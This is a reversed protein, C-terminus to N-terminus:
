PNKIQALQHVIDKRSVLGLIKGSKDTVPLRSVHTEAMLDVADQLTQDDTLVKVPKSMLDKVKEAAHEKLKQNFGQPDLYLLSGLLYIGRPNELTTFHKILDSETVIGVVKQSSDVVPVGLIAHKDMLQFLERINEDEQITIVKKTMFETVSKQLNNEM